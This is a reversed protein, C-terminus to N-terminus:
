MKYVTITYLKHYNNNLHNQVSVVFYKSRISKSPWKKKVKGYKVWQSSFVFNFNQMNAKVKYAYKLLLGESTNKPFPARVIHLLIVPSCGHRIKIEIFNSQLKELLKLLSNQANFGKKLFYLMLM